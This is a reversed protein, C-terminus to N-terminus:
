QVAVKKGNYIYIGKQTPAANLKVGNLTYWGEVVGTKNNVIEPTEADISRIATTTGDLEEMTFIIERAATVNAEGLDIFAAFPVINWSNESSSKIYAWKESNGLLFRLYSLTKDIKKTEYAGVFKYGLGSATTSADISPYASAPKKITVNDFQIYAADAIADETKVVFPTNAKIEGSMQLKFVVNKETTKEPDVVNVIAYGLAKSLDKIKIDFPLVLTNWQEAAWTRAGGLTQDRKFQVKANVNAGNNYNLIDMLTGDAPLEITALEAGGSIVLDGKVKTITYNKNKFGEVVDAATVEIKDEKTGAVTVNTGDAVALSWSINAKTDGNVLGEISVAAQDLAATAAAVNAKAPMIQTLATITLPAKEITFKVPTSTYLIEYGAKATAEADITMLYEGADEGAVRKVTPPTLLGATAGTVTVSNALDAPDKEGYVKSAAKIAILIQAAGITLKGKTLNGEWTYNAFTAAAKTADVVPEIKNNYEGAAATAYDFGDVFKASVGKKLEKLDADSVHGSITATLTPTAAGFEVTKNDATITLATKTVEYVGTNDLGVTYNDNTFGGGPATLDITTSGANKINTHVKAVPVGGIADGAFLGTWEFQEAALGLAATTKTESGDYPRTQKKAKVIAVAPNITLKYTALDKNADTGTYDGEFNGAAKSQITFVANGANKNDGSTKTASFNAAFQEATLPTGNLSVTFTPAQFDRNYTVINGTSSIAIGDALKAGNLISKKWIDMAGTCTLEYNASTLGEFTVDYPDVAPDLAAGTASKTANTGTYNIKTITGSVVEALTEENKLQYSPDAPNAYKLSYAIPATVTFPTGYVTHQTAITLELPAKNVILEIAKTGTYGLEEKGTIKIYHKGAPLTQRTADVGNVKVVENLATSTYFKADVDYKSADVTGDLRVEIVLAADSGYTRAAAGATAQSLDIQAWGALPLLAMLM